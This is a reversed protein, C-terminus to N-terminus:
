KNKLNINRKYSSNLELKRNKRLKRLKIFTTVLHHKILRVGFSDILTKTNQFNLLDIHLTKEFNDKKNDRFERM